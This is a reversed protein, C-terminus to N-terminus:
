LAVGGSLEEKVASFPIQPGEENSRVIIELKMDEPYSRSSPGMKKRYFRIEARM